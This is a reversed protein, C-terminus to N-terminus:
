LSKPVPILKRMGVKAVLGNDLPKIGEVARNIEIVLDSPLIDYLVGKVHRRQIGAIGVYGLHQSWKIQAHPDTVGVSKLWGQYFEQAIKYAQAHQGNDEM